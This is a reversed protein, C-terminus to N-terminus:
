YWGNSCHLIPNQLSRGMGLGQQSGAPLTVVDGDIIFAYWLSSSLHQIMRPRAQALLLNCKPIGVSM